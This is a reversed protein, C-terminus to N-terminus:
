GRLSRGLKEREILKEEILEFAEDKFGITVVMNGGGSEPEQGGASLSFEGKKIGESFREPVVIERPTFTSVFSEGFPSGSGSYGKAANFTQSRITEVQVLGAATVAAALIPGIIGGQALAKSAGEATNIIASAISAAKGIEFLKRNSSRTLTETLGLAESEQSNLIQLHKKQDKEEDAKSKKSVAAEKTKTALKANFSDRLKQTEADVEQNNADIKQQNLADLYAQNEELEIEKQELRLLRKKEEEEAIADFEQQRYEAMRKQYSESFSVAAQDGEATLDYLEKFGEKALSFNFTAIGTLIKAFGGLNKSARNVFDKVVDFAAGLGAAIENRFNYAAVGAAVLATIAIGLPNAFLFRIATGAAAASVKIAGLAAAFAPSAAAAATTVAQFKVIGLGVTALTALLGAAATTVGVIVAAFKTIEKNERMTQIMSTIASTVVKIVPLFENGFDGALLSFNDKLTSIQGGLTQSQKDLAGFAIGGKDSMSRFAKEFTAFDVLGKSVLDKVSSEAVGLTKAIAPGIPIAREQFQLLREGTLKGAAAVQGFILSIEDIPKGVAAAVNGINELKTRLEDAAFGFGLLQQGAKAIDEFQFPTKASFDKLQELAKQAGQANGILVEFQTNISEFKAAQSVAAGIGAGLGAFALAGTTAISKLGKELDQTEKKVQNLSGQFKEINGTIDIVVASRGM